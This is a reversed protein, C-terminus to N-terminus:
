LERTKKSQIFILSILGLSLGLLGGGIVDTTWHEGLYVRSILMVSCFVILLLCFVIKLNKSLKKSKFVLYFLIVTLFLWRASHGSPYSNVARVYFQPFEILKETRLLFHPPPLHSIFYKAYLEIFNLLIYIPIIIATKIKRIAFFIILLFFTIVEFNGIISFFSFLGDVRRPINDQLRVTTDFDFSNFLNKKVLYSFLLFLLLIFFAILSLRLKQKM